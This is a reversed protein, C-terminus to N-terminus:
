ISALNKCIAGVSRVATMLCHCGDQNISEPPTSLRGCVDAFEAIRHNISECGQLQSGEIAGGKSMSTFPSSDAGSTTTTSHKFRDIQVMSICTWVLRLCLHLQVPGIINLGIDESRQMDYREESEYKLLREWSLSPGNLVYHIAQYLGDKRWMDLFKSLATILTMSWSSHVEDSCKLGYSHGARGNLLRVNDVADDGWV